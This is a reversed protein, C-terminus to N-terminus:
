RANMQVRILDNDTDFMYDGDLDAVSCEYTGLHELVDLDGEKNKGVIFAMITNGSYDEIEVTLNKM